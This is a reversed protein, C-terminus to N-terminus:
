SCYCYASKDFANKFLLDIARTSHPVYLIKRIVDNMKFSKSDVKDESAIFRALDKSHIFGAINDLNKKFIPIRTHESDIVLEKIEKLSSSYQVSVIDTRPTMIDEVRTDKISIINKIM